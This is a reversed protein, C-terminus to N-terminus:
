RLGGGGSGGVGRVSRRIPRTTTERSPTPGSCSRWGTGPKLSDAFTTLTPARRTVWWSVPPWTCLRLASSLSRRRPGMRDNHGNGDTRNRRRWANKLGGNPRRGRGTPAVNNGSSPSLGRSCPGRRVRRVTGELLGCRAPPSHTERVQPLHVMWWRGHRWWGTWSRRWRRRKWRPRDRNRPVSGTRTRQRKRPRENHGGRQNM